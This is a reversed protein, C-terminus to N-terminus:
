CPYGVNSCNNSATVPELADNKPIWIMLIEPINGGDAARLLGGQESRRQGAGAYGQFGM